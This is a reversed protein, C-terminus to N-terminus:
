EQSAISPPDISEDMPNRSVQQVYRYIRRYVEGHPNEQLVIEQSSDPLFFSLKGSDLVCFSHIHHLNFVLIVRDYKLTIWHGPVTGDSLTRVYALVLRYEHPNSKVTLVIEQPNGAVFFSVRGHEIFTFANVQDLNVVYTQREDRLKVWYSM